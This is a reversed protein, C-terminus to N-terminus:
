VLRSSITIMLSREGLAGMVHVGPQQRVSFGVVEHRRLNSFPSTTPTTVVKTSAVAFASKQLYREPFETSQVFFERVLEDEGSM